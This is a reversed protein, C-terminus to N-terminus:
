KRRLTPANASGTSFFLEIARYAHILLDFLQNVSILYLGNRFEKSSWINVCPHGDISIVSDDVVEISLFSDGAPNTVMRIELRLAPIYDTTLTAWLRACDAATASRLVQPHDTTSM